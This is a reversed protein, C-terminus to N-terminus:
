AGRGIRNALAKMTDAGLVVRHDDEGLQHVRVREKEGGVSIGNVRERDEVQCLTRQHNLYWRHCETSEIIHPEAPDDVDADRAGVTPFSALIKENRWAIVTRKGIATEMDAARFSRMNEIS